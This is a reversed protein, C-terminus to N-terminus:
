GSWLGTGALEVSSLFFVWSMIQRRSEFPFCPLTRATDLGMLAGSKYIMEHPVKHQTGKSKTKKLDKSMRDAFEATSADDKLTLEKMM